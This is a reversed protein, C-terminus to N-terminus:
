IKKENKLNDVYKKHFKTSLTYAIFKADDGFWAIFGRKSTPIGQCEGLIWDLEKDSATVKVVEKNEPLDFIKDLTWIM